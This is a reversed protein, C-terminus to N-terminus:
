GREKPGWRSKVEELTVVIDDGSGGEWRGDPGASGLGLFTNGESIVVARNGWADSITGNRFDIHEDDELWMGQLWVTVEALNVPIPEAHREEALLLLNCVMTLRNREDARIHGEIDPQPCGSAVACALLATAALALVQRNRAV